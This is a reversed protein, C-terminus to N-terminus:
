QEPEIPDHEDTTVCRGESRAQSILVAWTNAPCRHLLWQAADRPDSWDPRLWSHGHTLWEDLLEVADCGYQKWQAEFPDAPRASLHEVTLVLARHVDGSDMDHRKALEMRITSFDLKM